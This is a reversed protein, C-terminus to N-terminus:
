DPRRLIVGHADETVCGARRQSTGPTATATTPRRRRAGGTDIAARGVGRQWRAGRGLQEDVQLVGPEVPEGAGDDLPGVEAQGARGPMPPWPDPELEPREPDPLESRVESTAPVWVSRTQYAPGSM